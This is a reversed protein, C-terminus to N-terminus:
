FPSKVTFSLKKLNVPHKFTISEAHLYLRDNRKGYLEDGVIPTNLGKHHAAHIRLQHTRGTIPYFYVMTRKDKSSIFKWQTTAIKGNEYCVMQKPRDGFDVKLPLNIEGKKNELKGDLLAVYRKNVTRNIFQAQLLQHVEKTKAILLIGSTSMDLRHVLLPGTAKPYKEKMRAYVSDKIESGSVSLLDYPKNILLLYEDEFVIEIETSHQLQKILPNEEVLLGKLMHKLIPKCKGNCASYFNQHKRIAKKLPKGWWFEALAIPKLDNLFAYQFLKPACCDGSGAPINQSSVTFLDFLNEKEGLSNLFEYRKFIEQQGWSSKEKRLSKLADIKHKSKEFETKLPLIKDNLYAKYERLYFEENINLQNNTKGTIKREKRLKKKILTEKEIINQHKESTKTYLKKTKLYTIDNELYAIQANIENIEKETKIYFGNEDLINFVPPVFNKHITKDALKGSFAALYGIQNNHNKVVLVGFMKGLSSDIPNSIGFDHTFDNQTSLYQQLENAAIKALPHPTYNHPYEIKEPLSINTIDSSFPIFKTM